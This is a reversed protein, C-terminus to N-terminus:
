PLYSIILNMSFFYGSCNRPQVLLFWFNHGRLMDSSRSQNTQSLLTPVIIKSCREYGSGLVGRYKSSGIRLPTWLLLIIPGHPMTWKTPFLCSLSMQSFYSFQMNDSFTWSLLKLNSLFNKSCSSVFGRKWFMPPLNVTCM